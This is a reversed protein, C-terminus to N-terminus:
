RIYNINNIVDILIKINLVFSLFKYSNPTVIPYDKLHQSARFTEYKESSM